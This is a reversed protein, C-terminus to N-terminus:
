RIFEAYCLAILYCYEIEKRILAPLLRTLYM